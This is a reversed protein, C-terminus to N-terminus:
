ATGVSKWGYWTNVSRLAVPLDNDGWKQTHEQGSNVLSIWQCSDVTMIKGCHGRPWHKGSIGMGM